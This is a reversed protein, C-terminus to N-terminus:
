HTETLGIKAYATQISKLALKQLLAEDIFGTKGVSEEMEEGKIGGEFWVPKEDGKRYISFSLNSQPHRSGIGMVTTGNLDVDVRAVVLADVGLAQILADRGAVDLIRPSDYDMVDKVIFQKRGGGPPMKNQWGKMTKDFADRYGNHTTMLKPDMVNWKLQHKFSKCLDAYMSDVAPDNQPIMTGGQAGELKGSGLNLGIQASAPENASFAVIAVKKIQSVAVEDKSHTLSSCAALPVLSALVTLAKLYTKM